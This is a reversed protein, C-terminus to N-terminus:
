PAARLTRAAFVKKCDSAVNYDADLLARDLLSRVLTDPVRPNALVWSSGARTNALAEPPTAPNNSALGAVDGEPDRLLTVLTAAPTAAHGAAIERLKPQKSAALTNWFGSDPLARLKKFEALIEPEDDYWRPVAREIQKRTTHHSLLASLAWDEMDGAGDLTEFVEASLDRRHLLAACFGPRGSAARCYKAVALL